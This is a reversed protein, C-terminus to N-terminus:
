QLLLSLPLHFLSTVHHFPGGQVNHISDTSL